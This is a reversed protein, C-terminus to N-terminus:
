LLFNGLGLKRYYLRSFNPFLSHFSYISNFGWCSTIYDVLIHNGLILFGYRRVCFMAFLSNCSVQRGMDVYQNCEKQKTM